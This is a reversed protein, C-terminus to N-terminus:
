PATAGADAATRQPSSLPSDAPDPPADEWPAWGWVNPNFWEVFQIIAVDKIGCADDIMKALPSTAPPPLHFGTDAEFQKIIDERGISYQLCSLWAGAMLPDKDFAENIKEGLQQATM